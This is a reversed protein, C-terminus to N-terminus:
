AVRKRLFRGVPPDWPMRYVGWGGFIDRFPRWRALDLASKEECNRRSVDAGADVLLKTVELSQLHAAYMLATMGFFDTLDVDAGAHLFRAVVITNKAQAAWMLPTDLAEGRVNVDLGAALYVDVVDLLGHAIARQLGNLAFTNALSDEAALLAALGALDRNRVLGLYKECGNM